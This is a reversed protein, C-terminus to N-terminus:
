TKLWRKQPEMDLVFQLGHQDILARLEDRLAREDPMDPMDVMFPANDAEPIRAVPPLQIKIDIKGSQKAAEKKPPRGRGRKVPAQAETTTHAPQVDDAVGLNLDQATNTEWPARETTKQM